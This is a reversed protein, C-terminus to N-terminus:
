VELGPIMMPLTTSSNVADLLTSFSRYSPHHLDVDGLDAARFQIGVDHRSAM